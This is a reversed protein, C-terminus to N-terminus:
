GGAPRDLFTRVAMNCAEPQELPTVHGSCPIVALQSGPIHQHAREAWTVPVAPDNAGHILLTPVCLEGLRDLYNTAVHDWLVDKRQLQRWGAATGPRRVIRWFDEFLADTAVQPRCPFTAGLSLRALRCSRALMAWSLWNVLPMHVLLYGAIGGPVERGLGYSDVLILRQLREPHQLAFGLAVGGGLSLGVLTARGLALADLVRGILPVLDAISWAPPLPDSEGFGPWDPAFVRHDDALNAIVHRFSFGADDAAGCHLLVV